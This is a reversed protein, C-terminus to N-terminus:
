GWIDISGGEGGGYTCILSDCDSFQVIGPFVRMMSHMHIAEM